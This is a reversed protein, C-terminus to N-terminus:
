NNFQPAHGARMRSELDTRRQYDKKLREAYAQDSARESADREANNKDILIERRGQPTDYPDIYSDGRNTERKLARADRDEQDKQRQAARVNLEDLRKKYMADNRSLPAQVPASGPTTMQTQAQTQTQTRALIENPTLDQAQASSIAALCCAFLLLTLKKM